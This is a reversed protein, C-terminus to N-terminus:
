AVNLSWKCREGVFKFNSVEGADHRYAVFYIVRVSFRTASGTLRTTFENRLM